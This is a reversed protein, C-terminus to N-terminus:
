KTGRPAHKIWQATLDDRLIKAIAPDITAKDSLEIADDSIKQDNQFNMVLVCGPVGTKEYRIVRAGITGIKLEKVGLAMPANVYDVKYVLWAPAALAEAAAQRKAKQDKSEILTRVVPADLPTPNIWDQDEPRTAPTRGALQVLSRWTMPLAGNFDAPTCDRTAAPTPVERAMKDALTKVEAPDAEPKSAGSKGCAALAAAILLLERPSSRGSM